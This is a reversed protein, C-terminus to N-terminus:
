PLLSGNLIATKNGLCREFEAKLAEADELGERITEGVAANLVIIALLLPILVLAEVSNM